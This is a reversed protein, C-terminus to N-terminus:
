GQVRGGAFFYRKWYQDGLSSIMVGHSSAQVFYGGSLYVGVHSIYRSHIKFFVLDGEILNQPDYIPISASFQEFATRFLSIHYVSDYLARTFASCDIGSKSTGGLQYPVGLWDKIFQALSVDSTKVLQDITIKEDSIQQAERESLRYVSKGKHTQIANAGGDIVVNDLFSPSTNKSGSAAVRSQNLSACSSFFLLFSFIFFPLLRYKMLIYTKAFIFIQM